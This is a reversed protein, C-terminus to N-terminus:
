TSKNFIPVDGASLEYAHINPKQKFEWWEAGDYTHRELWFDTGVVILGTNVNEFGYGDDYNENARKVFDEVTTRMNLDTCGVWLIDQMTKNHAKLIEVTEHLLNAM